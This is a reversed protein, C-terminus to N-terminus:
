SCSPLNSYENIWFMDWRKNHTADVEKIKICKNIKNNNKFSLSLEKPIVKDENGIYHVQPVARTMDEIEYFSISKRLPSIKILQSLRNHNINGAITRISKIKENNISGLYMAIGAGGSYGVLHIEKFQKAFTDIIGKYSSLVADSYQSITWIENNNCNSGEIYQCPRALYIVNDSNDIKALRFALPDTPTPNSSITSRDIWSVGDGEIYIIVKESNKIKNLSYIEFYPTELTEEKFSNQNLLNLTELRQDNNPLSFLNGPLSCSTLFM